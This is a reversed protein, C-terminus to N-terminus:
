CFYNSLQHISIFFLIQTWWRMKAHMVGKWIKEFIRFKFMHFRFHITDFENLLIQM